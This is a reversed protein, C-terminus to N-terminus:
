LRTDATVHHVGHSKHSYMFAHQHQLRGSPPLNNQRGASDKTKDEAKVSVKLSESIKFTIYIYLDDHLGSPSAPGSGSCQFMKKCCSILKETQMLNPGKNQTMEVDVCKQPM